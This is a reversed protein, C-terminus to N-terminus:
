NVTGCSFVVMLMPGAFLRRLNSQPLCRVLRMGENPRGVALVCDWVIGALPYSRSDYMPAVSLLPRKAEMASSGAEMGHSTGAVTLATSVSGIGRQPSVRLRGVGPGAAQEHRGLSSGYSTSVGSLPARSGLGRTSFLKVPGEPTRTCAWPAQFHTFHLPPLRFAPDPARSLCALHGQTGQPTRPISPFLGARARMSQSNVAL